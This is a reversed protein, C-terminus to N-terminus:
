IYVEAVYAITIKVKLLKKLYCNIKKKKQVCHVNTKPGFSM